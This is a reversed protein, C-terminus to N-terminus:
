DPCPYPTPPYNPDSTWCTRRGRPPRVLEPPAKSFQEVAAAVNNEDLDLPSSLEIEVPTGAEMLFDRNHYLVVTTVAVAALSGFVIATIKVATSGLNPLPPLPPPAPPTAAMVPVPGANPSDPPALKGYTPNVELPGPISVTYGTSFIVNAWSLRMSLVEYARNHRTIEEIVGQVYTGPPIVMRGGVVVPFVLQLNVEDGPRTHKFSISRALALPLRTGAPVTLGFDTSTPEQDRSQSNQAPRNPQTAQGARRVVPVIQVQPDDGDSQAVSLGAALALTALFGCINRAQSIRSSMMGRRDARESGQHNTM